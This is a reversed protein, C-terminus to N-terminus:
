PQLAPGPPAQVPPAKRFHTPIRLTSGALVTTYFPSAQSAKDLHKYRINVFM